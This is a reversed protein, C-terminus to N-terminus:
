IKKFPCSTILNRVGTSPRMQLVSQPRGFLPVGMQPWKITTLKIRELDGVGRGREVLGGYPQHLAVKVRVHDSTVESIWTM